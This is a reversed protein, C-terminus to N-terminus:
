KKKFRQYDIQYQSIKYQLIRKTLGLIEAAKSQKGGADKLADVIMEKEYAIVAQIFNTKQAMKSDEKMQLTPPLNRGHIVEDTSLLVAREICNELERVNGPWHYASIMDIAPTSIRRIPRNTEKAYKQVFHDALLLVDAGRDRLPPLHIPFVNIRYYLDKRFRGAEVDSELNRNTAAILRINVKISHSSGVPQFEKEQIVRLLRTQASLSLEGIEDLFITGGSAAEFFGARRAVAGTFAGKQHGFLESELLPEPLAACNVAIFPGNKRPSKQHIARAVLEKGTGTEGRILVTTNSDAVQAIPGYIERMARSNGVMESPKGREELASRLRLNEEELAALNQSEKRRALVTQAVLDAIAQLFRLEGELTSAEKVGLRDASLAGVVKGSARIPVCLFSLDALSLSKRAGMRDLFLPEDKLRLVALPRGSEVVKGTIGEGFRYRGKKRQEESLGHAVEVAVEKESPQLISITGHRMQAREALIELVHTMIAELKEGAALVRAVEYLVSLGDFSLYGEIPKNM